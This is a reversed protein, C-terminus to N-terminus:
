GGGIVLLQEVDLSEKDKYGDQAALQVLKVYSNGSEKEAKATVGGSHRHRYGECFSLKCHSGRYSICFICTKKSIPCSRKYREVM